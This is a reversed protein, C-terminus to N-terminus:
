KQCYSNYMDTLFHTSTFRWTLTHLPSRVRVLIKGQVRLKKVRVIINNKRQHNTLQPLLSPHSSLSMSVSVFLFLSATTLPACAPLALGLSDNQSVVGDKEGHQQPPYIKLSYILEPLRVPLLYKTLLSGTTNLSRPNSQYSPIKHKYVGFSKLNITIHTSNLQQNRCTHLPSLHLAKMQGSAPTPM